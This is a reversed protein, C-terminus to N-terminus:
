LATARPASQIGAEIATDDEEAIAQSSCGPVGGFEGLGRHMSRTGSVALRIALLRTAVSSVPSLWALAFAWVAVASALGITEARQERAISVRLGHRAAL